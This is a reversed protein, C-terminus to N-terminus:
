GKNAALRHETARFGLTFHLRGHRKAGDIRAAYPHLIGFRSYYAPIANQTPSFSWGCAEVGLTSVDKSLEVQLVTLM